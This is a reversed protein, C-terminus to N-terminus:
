HPSAVATLSVATLAVATLAVATLAVTTLVQPLQECRTLLYLSIFQAGKRRKM